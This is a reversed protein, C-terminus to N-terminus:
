LFRIQLLPLVNLPLYFSDENEDENYVASLPKNMLGTNCKPCRSPSNITMYTIGGGIKNVKINYEM